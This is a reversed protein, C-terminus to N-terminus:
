LKAGSDFVARRDTWAPSLSRRFSCRISTSSVSRPGSITKRLPVRRQTSRPATTTLQVPSALSRVADRSGTRDGPPCTKVSFVRDMTCTSDPTEAQTSVCRNRDPRSAPVGSHDTSASANRRTPAAQNVIVAIVTLRCLMITARWASFGDAIRVRPM